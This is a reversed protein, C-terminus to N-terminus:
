DAARAIGRMSAALEPLREVALDAAWRHEGLDSLVWPPPEHVPGFLGGVAGIALVALGQPSRDGDRVPSRGSVRDAETRDREDDLYSRLPRWPSWPRLRWVGATVLGGAWQDFGLRGWDLWWQLGTDGEDAQAAVDGLGAAAARAHDLEVADETQDLAGCLALDVILASRLMYDDFTLGRPRGRRNLCLAALRTTALDRLPESM